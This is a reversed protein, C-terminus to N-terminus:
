LRSSFCSTFGIEWVYARPCHIGQLDWGGSKDGCRVSSTGLPLTEHQSSVRPSHGPPNQQGGQKEASAVRPHQSARQRSLPSLCGEPEGAWAPSPFSPLSQPTVGPPFWLLAAHVLTNSCRSSTAKPVQCCARSCSEGYGKNYAPNQSTNQAM